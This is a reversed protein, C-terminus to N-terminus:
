RFASLSSRCLNIKDQLERAANGAKQAFDEKSSVYLISRSTSILYPIKSGDDASFLTNRLDGGQAGIGPILYPMKGTIERIADINEPRTAGVVLGANGCINWKRVKKAVKLYLDPLQFDTAGSNSTLCLVFVGRDPNELFPELADYGLYPTVTVADCGFTEFVAKAYMQSSHGVDGRKADGIVPIEPPIKRILELLVEMGSPGLAEFYAFNPKFVAAHDKTENVIYLLFELLGEQSRPLHVPIKEWVPDLGVCIYTKRATIQKELKEFFTM